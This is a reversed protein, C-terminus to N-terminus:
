STKAGRLEIARETLVKKLADMVEPTINVKRRLTREKGWKDNLEEATTAAAAYARVYAAYEAETKPEVALAALVAEKKEAALAEQSPSPSDKAMRPDGDPEATEAPKDKAKRTRKPQDSASAADGVPAAGADKGVSGDGPPSAKAEGAAAAERGDGEAAPEKSQSTPASAQSM